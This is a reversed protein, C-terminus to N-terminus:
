PAPRFVWLAAPEGTIAPVAVYLRDTEPLFMSTRAGKATLIRAKHAYGTGNRAFVDVVGQGCSVYILNRKADPFVDDADSCAELETLIHGGATDFVLMRAPKRTLVFLRRGDEELAMPFNSRAESLKWSAIQKGRKRDVVAIEGAEPVNAFIRGTARDLQFSEPHGKLSIDALKAGAPDLMALAGNGYGVFIQNAESDIRINDPDDGLDIQGFQVFNEAQLLRLSGDGANAVYLTDTAPLYGVGQPEKLGGISRIVTDANLDVVGVTNKGLEAVFLRHRLPDAAFHDIRGKVDGLMIKTELALPEPEGAWAVSAAALTVGLLAFWTV